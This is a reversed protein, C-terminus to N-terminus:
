FRRLAPGSAVDGDLIMKLAVIRNLSTQRAEYVVGMGGRGIQRLLEYDGFRLPASNRESASTDDAPLNSSPNEALRMLCETCFGRLSGPAEVPLLSGCTSCRQPSNM